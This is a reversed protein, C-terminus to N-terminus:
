SPYEYGNYTCVNNPYKGNASAPAPSAEAGSMTPMGAMRRREDDKEKQRLSEQLVRNFIAEEEERSMPNAEAERQAMERLRQSLTTYPRSTVLTTEESQDELEAM